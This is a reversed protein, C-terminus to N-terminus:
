DSSETLIRLLDALGGRPCCRRFLMLFTNDAGAIASEQLLREAIRLAERPLAIEKFCEEAYRRASAHTQSHQSCRYLLAFYRFAHVAGAKRASDDDVEFDRLLALAANPYGSAELCLAASLPDDILERLARMRVDRLLEHPIDRKCLSINEIFLHDIDCALFTRVADIPNEVLPEGLTNFSTNILCEIQTISGFSELLEFLGKHVEPTVVQYRISGDEHLFQHTTAIVPSHTSLMYPALSHNPPDGLTRAFERPTISIGFPRFSERFKVRSNLSQIIGPIKPNAFISRAGLARPGFESRGNLWCVIEGHALVEAAKQPAVTTHIFRELGYSGLASLAETDSYRGGLFPCFFKRLQRQGRLQEIWGYYALGIANGDDTAAPQVFVNEWGGSILKANVVCNLAIGGSFCLTKASTNEKLKRSTHCVAMELEEQAKRALDEALSTNFWIPKYKLLVDELSTVKISSSFPIGSQEFFTDLRALSIYTNGDPKLDVLKPWEPRHRGRAALAMLKGASPRGAESLGVLAAFADYLMAVSLDHQNGAFTRLQKIQSERGFFWSCKEFETKDFHHGQEDMILIASEIFPSVVFAGYAHALHHSPPKPEVVKQPAFPLQALIDERCSVMSRGCVVLDIDDANLRHKRLLFTIARLPPIIIGMPKQRLFGDSAKRRDLREEAIAGVIEGDALLCAARDHNSMSVGLVFVPKSSM